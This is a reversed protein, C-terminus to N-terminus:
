SRPNGGKVYVEAEYRPDARRYAPRRAAAARMIRYAPDEATASVAAEPLTYRAPALAIDLRFTDAPTLGAPVERRAPAYGVYGFALTAPSTSLRLQYDGELGATAGTGGGVTWTWPSM